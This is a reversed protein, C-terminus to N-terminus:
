SPRWGGLSALQDSPDEGREDLGFAAQNLAHLEPTASRVCDVDFFAGGDGLLGLLEGFLARKRADPLHHIALSSVVVDFPVLGHPLPRMLDHLELRVARSGAFRERAAALLEPSIDLGVAGAGPWRRLLLGILHGGGTGLDLIREVRAPLLHDVILAEADAVHPLRPRRELWEARPGGIAV